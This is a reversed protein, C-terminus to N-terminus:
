LGFPHTGLHRNLCTLAHSLSAPYHNCSVMVPYDCIRLIKQIAGNRQSVQFPRMGSFNVDPKEIQSFQGTCQAIGKVSM